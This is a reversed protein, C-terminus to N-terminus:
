FMSSLVQVYVLLLIFACAALWGAEVPNRRGWDVAAGFLGALRGRGIRARRAGAPSTINRVDIEVPEDESAQDEDAIGDGDDGTGYYPSHYDGYMQMAQRDHARARITSSSRSCRRFPM